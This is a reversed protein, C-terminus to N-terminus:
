YKPELLTPRSSLHILDSIRLGFDSLFEFDSIRVHVRSLQRVNPNRIEAKGRDAPRPVITLDPGEDGAAAGAGDMVNFARRHDREAFHAVHMVDIRQDGDDRHNTRAGGIFALLHFKRAPVLAEARHAIQM